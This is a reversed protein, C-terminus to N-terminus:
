HDHVNPTNTCTTKYSYKSAIYMYVEDIRGLDGSHMWGESDISAKTKEEEGYYGMM